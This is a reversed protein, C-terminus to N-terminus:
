CDMTKHDVRRIEKGKPSYVIAQWENINRINEAFNIGLIVVEKGRHLFENGYARSQIQELAIQSSKDYKFEFIYISKPLSSIVLDIRGMSTTYESMPDLNMAHLFSHFISHYYAEDKPVKSLYYPITSFCAHMGEMFGAINQNKLSIILSSAHSQTESKFSRELEKKLLSYFSTQVEKNPFTLLIPDEDNRIGSEDIPKSYQYRDITLYGGQFMEGIATLQAEKPAILDSLKAVIPKTVDVNFECREHAKRLVFTPTGTNIWYNSFQGYKLLKLVSFPNYVKPSDMAFRYGNYWYRLQSALKERDGDTVEQALKSIREQFIADPGFLEEETYGAITAYHPLLTIDDLNNPGSNLSNFCYASVGTIFELKVLGQGCCDKVVTLFDRVVQRNAEKLAGEPLNIFPADYEDVLIVVKPSYEEGLQSLLFILEAVYLKISYDQYPDALQINYENAIHHIKKKLVKKLEDSTSHDIGSFNIDIIPYKKWDYNRKKDAIYYGQFLEKRGQCIARM